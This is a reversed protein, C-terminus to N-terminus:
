KLGFNVGIDSLVGQNLEHTNALLCIKVLIANNKEKRSILM